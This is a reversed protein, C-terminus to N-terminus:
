QLKVAETETQIAKFEDRTVPNPGEPDQFKEEPDFVNEVSERSQSFSPEEVQPNKHRTSHETVDKMTEKAHCEEEIWFLIKCLTRIM